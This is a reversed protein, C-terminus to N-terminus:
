SWSECVRSLVFKIKRNDILLSNRFAGNRLFGQQNGLSEEGVYGIVGLNSQYCMKFTEQFCRM